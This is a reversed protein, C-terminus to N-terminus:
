ESQAGADGDALRTFLELLQADVGLNLPQEPDMGVTAIPKGIGRDLVAQAAQVRERKPGKKDKAIQILVQIMEPAASLAMKRIEAATRARPKPASGGKHRRPDPGKEFRAM